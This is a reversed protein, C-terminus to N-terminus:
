GRLTTPYGHLRVGEWQWDTLVKSRVKSWISYGPAVFANIEPSDIVNIEWNVDHLGAAEAFPILRELVKKVKQV